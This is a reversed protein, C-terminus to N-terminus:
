HARGEPPRTGALRAIAQALSEVDAATSCTSLSARLFGLAVREPVPLPAATLGGAEVAIGFAEALVAAAEGADWGALAFAIVGIAPRPSGLPWVTVLPVEALRRRLALDLEVLRAPATRRLWDPAAGRAAGWLGPAGDEWRDLAALTGALAVRDAPLRTWRALTLDLIVQAGSHECLEAIEPLPAVAGTPSVAGSVTLARGRPAGALALAVAALDPAGHIDPPTLVLEDGPRRLGADVAAVLEPPDGGNVILRRTEESRELGRRIHDLAAAPGETVVETWGAGTALSVNASCCGRQDARPDGAAVPGAWSLFVDHVAGM